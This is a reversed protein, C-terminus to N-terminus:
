YVLLNCIMDYEYWYEYSVRNNIEWYIYAMQQHNTYIKLKNGARTEIKSHNEIINQWSYKAPNHSWLKQM